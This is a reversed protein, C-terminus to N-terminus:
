SRAGEEMAGALFFSDDEVADLKDDKLNCEAKGQDVLLDTVEGFLEGQHVNESNEAAEAEEAESM